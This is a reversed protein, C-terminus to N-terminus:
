LRSEATNKLRVAIDEAACCLYSSLEERNGFYDSVLKRIGDKLEEGAAAPFDPRELRKGIRRWDALELRAATLPKEALMHALVEKLVIECLNEIMDRYGTSYSRLVGLIWEGPFVTLFEQELKLCRVYEGIRDIGCLRTFDMLVPYDLTLITNQPDFRVDYWKFFEPIGKIVTDYLCRNEFADFEPIMANYVMLTDSVKGKICEVGAEYAQVASMKETRVSYDGSMQEAEQICYLVAEMLKEAQEYTISTSDCGAYKGALMGVIPVLEEMEYDTLYETHNGM